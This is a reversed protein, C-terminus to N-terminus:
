RIKITKDLKWRQKRLKKTWGALEAEVQRYIGRETLAYHTHKGGYPGKWTGKIQFRRRKYIHVTPSWDGEWRKLSEIADPNTIKM